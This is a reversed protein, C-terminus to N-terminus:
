STCLKFTRRVGNKYASSKDIQKGRAPCFGCFNGCQGGLDVRRALVVREYGSGRDVGSVFADNDQMQRAHFQVTHM